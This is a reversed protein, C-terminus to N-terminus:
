VLMKAQNIVDTDILGDRLRVVRQCRDAVSDDHTVMIITLGQEHLEDFLQLIAEGTKSDLNGTPEDALLLSPGTVLARAIAVRQMQGGSLETPTHDGREGLGVRTAAEEARSRRVEPPVSQYFLPVEINELVTLQPILNFAQFVFGIYRGRAESLAVDDLRAVDEGELFYQGASPQDLCGIINMLTSKGSGSPGMIALYQGRPVALSVDRLAHVPPASPSKQYTKRLNEVRAVETMCKNYHM